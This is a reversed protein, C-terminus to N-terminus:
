VGLIFPQHQTHVHWNIFLKGCAYCLNRVNSFMFYFSVCSTLCLPGQGDMNNQPVLDLKFRSCFYYIYKCTLFPHLIAANPRLSKSGM